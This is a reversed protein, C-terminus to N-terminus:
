NLKIWFLGRYGRITGDENYVQEMPCVYKIKKEFGGTFKDFYLEEKFKLYVIGSVDFVEDIEIPVLDGKQNEVYETDVHHFLYELDSDKMPSLEGPLFEFLHFERKKVKDFLDELMQKRTDVPLWSDKYIEAAPDGINTKSEVVGLKVANVSGCPSNCSAFSFVILILVFKLMFGKKIVFSTYKLPQQKLLHFQNKM